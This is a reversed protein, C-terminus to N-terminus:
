EIVVATHITVEPIRVIVQQGDFWWEPRAGQPELAVKEPRISRRVTLIVDRVPLSQEICVNNGDIPRNGHHNVLHVITRRGAPTKQDAMAVELWAPAALHVPFAPALRRVLNALVHKLPWVNKAQYAQFIDAAVYAAAGRGVRRYTIAPSGTPNGPPSWRLLPQGDGRVYSTWLDALIQVDSNRPQVLLGTAEVIHPMPLADGLLGPDTVDIYCHSEKTEGALDLGLLDALAFRGAPKFAADLTGTRGTVLLGGGENVYKALAAALDDDIRRQDSLVIVPYRDSAPVGNIHDLLWKEYVFHHPLGTELFVKHAGRMGGERINQGPKETFHNKPSNLVAVAARPRANVLLPERDRVFALTRGLERMVAPPVDFAHTMQYGIWTLGGNAIITAAEHQMATAPKCGWDGWWQLFASNMIDFPLGLTAWHRAQYSGNFLQDEPSIDIMLTDIGAPAEEPMRLTYAWNFSVPLDPRHRHIADAIVQRIRRYDKLKWEVYPGWTKDEPGAPLEAGAEQRFRKRCTTCHCIDNHVFTGDFFMADVDYNTIIEEVHPVLLKELLPSHMCMSIGCPKGQADLTLWQPFERAAPESHFTMYYGIARINRQHLANIQADLLDLGPPLQPHVYRIDGKRYFSWGFGCKTFVSVAQANAEALRDAWRDADFASALGKASEQSHFDFFLKRFATAYWSM